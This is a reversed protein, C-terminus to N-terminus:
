CFIIMTPLRKEQPLCWARPVARQMARGATSREAWGRPWWGAGRTIQGSAQQSMM